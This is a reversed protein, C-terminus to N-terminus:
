PRRLYRRLLCVNAVLVAGLSGYLAIVDLEPM